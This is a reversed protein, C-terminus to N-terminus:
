VQLDPFRQLLGAGDGRAWVLHKSGPTKLTVKTSKMFWLEELGICRDFLMSAAREEAGVRQRDYLESRLRLDPGNYIKSGWQSSPVDVVHLYKAAPICLVEVSAMRSLHLALNEFSMDIIGHIALLRVRPLNVRIATLLKVTWMDHLVFCELKTLISAQEVLRYSHLRSTRDLESWAFRHGTLMQVNSCYHVMYDNYPSVVLRRISPFAPNRRAFATEFLHVQNEEIIIGLKHFDPSSSAIQLLLDILKSPLDKATTDTCTTHDIQLDITVERVYRALAPNWTELQALADDWSHTTGCRLAIRKFLYPLCFIRLQRCTQSLAKLPRHVKQNRSASSKTPAFAQASAELADCILSLIHGDLNIFTIPLEM